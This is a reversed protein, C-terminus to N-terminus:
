ACLAAAVAALRIGALEIKKDERSSVHDSLACLASGSKAIRDFAAMDEPTPPLVGCCYTQRWLHPEFQRSLHLQLEPVLSLLGSRVVDDGREGGCRRVLERRQTIAWLPAEETSILESLHEAQRCRTARKQSWYRCVTAAVAPRLDRMVKLAMQLGRERAEDACDDVIRNMDDVLAPSLPFARTLRRPMAAASSRSQDDLLNRPVLASNAPALPPRGPHSVCLTPPPPPSPSPSSPKKKRVAVVRNVGPPPDPLANPRGANAIGHGATPSPASRSRKRTESVRESKEAVPRSPWPRHTGDDVVNTTTTNSAPSPAKVATAGALYGHPRMALRSVLQSAYVRELLGVFREFDDLTVHSTTCWQIDEEDAVYAWASADMLDSSHSFAQAPLERRSPRESTDVVEGLTFCRPCPGSLHPPLDDGAGGEVDGSNASANAAWHEVCALFTPADFTPTPPRSRTMTPIRSSTGRGRRDAVRRGSPPAVVDCSSSSVTVITANSDGDDHDETTIHDDGCHDEGCPPQGEEPENNSGTQLGASAAQQLACRLTAAEDFSIAVDFRSQVRLSQELRRLRRASATHLLSSSPARGVPWSAIM